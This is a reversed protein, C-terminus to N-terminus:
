RRRGDVEIGDRPQIDVKEFHRGRPPPEQTVQVVGADDTWRYLVPRADEANAAAAQEARARRPDDTAEPERSFWWAVAIGAAIGAVVAWRTDM